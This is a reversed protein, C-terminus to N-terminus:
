NNNKHNIDVYNKECDKPVGLYMDPRGDKPLASHITTVFENVPFDIRFEQINEDEDIDRKHSM